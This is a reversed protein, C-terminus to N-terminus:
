LRRFCSREQRTIENLVFNVKERESHSALHRGSAIDPRTRDPPVIFGSYPVPRGAGNGVVLPVLGCTPNNAGPGCGVILRLSLMYFARGTGYRSSLEFREPEVSM